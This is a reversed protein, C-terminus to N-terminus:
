KLEATIQALPIRSEKLRQRALRLDAADELVALLRRFERLPLQVACPRGRRDLVVQEHLTMTM